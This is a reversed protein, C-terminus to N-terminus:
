GWLRGRCRSGSEVIVLRRIVVGLVLLLWLVGPDEKLKEKSEDTTAEVIPTVKKVVLGCERIKAGWIVFAFIIPLLLKFFQLIRSANAPYVFPESNLFSLARWQATMLHNQSTFFIYTMTPRVSIYRLDSRVIVVTSWYLFIRLFDATVGDNHHCTADRIWTNNLKCLLIIVIM